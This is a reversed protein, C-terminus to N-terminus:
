ALEALLLQADRLDPTDFGETFWGYIEALLHQAEVLKGQKQWLQALGMAARLELSRASQARALTLARQYWDEVERDPAGLTQLLDGKLKLLQANWYVNGMENAFAIGANVEDLAERHEGALALAEALMARSYPELMRSGHKQFGKLGTRALLAGAQADGIHALAWGCFLQGSCLFFSFDYKESMETLEEGLRQVMDINRIFSYFQGSFDLPGFRDFIVVRTHIVELAEHITKHAQDPFGLLWLCQALRTLLGDHHSNWMKTFVPQSPGVVLAVARRFYLLAQELEGFHYLSRGYGGLSTAILYIYGSNEALPLAQQEYDFCKRWEGRNRAAGALMTLARTRQLITGTQMALTHAKSWAEGVQENGYGYIWTRAVGLEDWLDIEAARFESNDPKMQAVTIARELYRVVAHHAYLREAVSAAQRLYALARELEDAQQYHGGLEGAVNDLHDAHLSELTQAVARHLLNRRVPSIEAYAVDRIRDHSFDFLASGQGRVLRRHLLEDVGLAAQEEDWRGARALLALTFARGGVAALEAVARARPSLGDLRAQIVAYVRPPLSALGNHQATLSPATQPQSQQFRLSEIVFLPNGACDAFLRDAVQGDLPQQAVASGLQATEAQNLSALPVQTLQGDRLLNRWLKHLPHAADVETDRVTGVVLLKLQPAASLLYQVWELTEPDCWQLDDLVLLIPNDNEQASFAQLLAEFLRKLQWRETLPQPAPLTADEILLEPLLRAIESRWVAPLASVRDALAASRLWDAVPAYALRGELAYARTRATRHSESQIEIFLEEALRTKGIGAEGAICVLQAKGQLASHWASRLIEWEAQRGILPYEPAVPPPPMTQRPQATPVLHNARSAADLKGVLAAENPEIERLPALGAAALLANADGTNYLAEKIHLWGIVALVRQRAQPGTLREGKCMRTIIAPEQLIGAALKSQSLGHRRHLYQGLLDGFPHSM